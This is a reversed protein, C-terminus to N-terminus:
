RRNKRQGIQELLCITYVEVAKGKGAADQGEKTKTKISIKNTSIDMIKSLNDKIVPVFPKLKPQQCIITTDINIVQYKKKRIIQMTQELLVSSAINKYQPDNDPFLTGIDGHNMAGLLADIISHILVDGDSHAMFGKTHPITINGLIFKRKKVLRHSDFGNGVRIEM